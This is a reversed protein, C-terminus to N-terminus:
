AAPQPPPNRVFISLVMAILLGVTGIGFLLYYSGFRDFLFSMLYGAGASAIAFGGTLWGWVQRHSAFGVLEAARGSALASIGPTMAGVVLASAALAVPHQSVIPLAVFAAKIGYGGTVSRYFGLREAVFGALVPGCMAGIGFFIWFFGGAEVGRQLGRAIFDAWFVTHPVFAASDLMYAVLLIAVPRTFARTAGAAAIVPDGPLPRWRSWTLLTLLGAMLAMGGWIAAPGQNALAPVLTGSTVVGLGVGTFVIGNSRGHLHAPARSLMLPVAAVMLLGGTFGTIFRWPAFWLFGWPLMCAALSIATIVMAIRTLRAVPILRSLWAALLSGGVYGALNTAGLYAADGADLWHHQILVPILPTYGFRAIGIGILLACLGALSDRWFASSM